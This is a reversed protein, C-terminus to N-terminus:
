FRSKHMDYLIGLHLVLWMPFIALYTYEKLGIGVGMFTIEVFYLVTAFTFFMVMFRETSESM